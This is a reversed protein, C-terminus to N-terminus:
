TNALTEQLAQLVIERLHAAAPPLQAEHQLLSLRIVPLEPLHLPIDDRGSLTQLNDPLGIKTRVTLGLGAAVAAWVGSLSHSSFALRWSLEVRDLAATATSRMLCPSELAALALPKAALLDHLVADDRPGVWQLPLEAIREVYPVNVDADWALALDLKGSAIREVLESNRAVVVDIKVKPHTRAFRGLIGTLIREGFDEQLGLRIWGALDTGRLASAAEDNLALLRRAYALVSEGTATLALGRGSKRLVPQGVQEELKKLQASIASTSRGLRDAARAFSGLEIGTVFTRLVDLDFVLRTM